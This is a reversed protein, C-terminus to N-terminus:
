LPHLLFKVDAPNHQGCGAGMRQLHCGKETINLRTVLHDHGGIGKHRSCVSKYQPSRLDYEHIDARIGHIQILLQDFLGDRRLRLHDHRDVICSHGTLHIRDHINCVSVAQFNHFICGLAHIGTIFAFCQSGDSIESAVAEM